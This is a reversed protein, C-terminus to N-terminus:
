GDSAAPVRYSALADRIAGETDRWGDEVVGMHVMSFVTGDIQFLVLSHMPTGDGRTYAIEVRLAENPREIVQERGLEVYGPRDMVGSMQLVENATSGVASPRRGSDFQTITILANGEPPQFVTGLVVSSGPQAPPQRTEVWGAPIDMSFRGDPDRYGV